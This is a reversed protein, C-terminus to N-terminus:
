LKKLISDVREKIYGIDNEINDLRQSTQEMYTLIQSIQRSQKEALGQTAQPPSDSEPPPEPADKASKYRHFIRRADERTMGIKNRQVWDYVEDLFRNIELLEIALEAM